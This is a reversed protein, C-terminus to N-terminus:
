EGDYVESVEGWLTKRNQARRRKEASSNGMWEGDNGNKVHAAHRKQKDTYNTKSEKPM